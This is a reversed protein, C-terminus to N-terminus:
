HTKYYKYIKIGLIVSTVMSIFGLAICIMAITTLGTMGLMCGIIAFITMWMFVISMTEMTKISMVIGGFINNRMIATTNKALM